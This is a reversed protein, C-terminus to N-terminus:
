VINEPMKKKKKIEQPRREKQPEAEGTKPRKAPQRAPNKKEGSVEGQEVESGGEATKQQEEEELMSRLLDDELINIETVIQAEQGCNSCYVCGPRIEAGCKACKM